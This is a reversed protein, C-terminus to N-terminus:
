PQGLPHTAPPTPPTHRFPTDFRAGTTSFFPQSFPQQVTVGFPGGIGGGASHSLDAFYEGRDYYMGFGARVVVNHLFGPTWAVGIRPAFGWQRGTLTSDSVGKTPFEKNNGAVVIGINTITDS